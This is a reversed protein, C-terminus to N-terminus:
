LSLSLSVTSLINMITHILIFIERKLEYFFSFALILLFFLYLISLSLTHTHTNTYKYTNSNSSLSLSLSSPTHRYCKIIIFDLLVLNNLM